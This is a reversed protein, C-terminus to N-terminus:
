PSESGSPPDVPVTVTFTSGRGPVSGVSVAGGHAQAIARVISLGLGAGDTRTTASRGRSFRDFIIKQEDEDIGSGTDSVWIRIRGDALQSGIGIRDGAGTHHVANDALALVAQTIRQADLPAHAPSSAELVWNRDALRSAKGFIEDTLAAVDVVTRRIFEPQEARALLLLDSVIRNMRELEDDVLAVTQRVDQPDTATMVDLHGRVITIPTRLEHGADDLFRRRGSVASEVRDLVDNLTATLVGFEDGPDPSSPPIRGSLDTETISHATTTINRVPALIRGALVWSGAAAAIATVAGGVAMIRGTDNASEREQDAFYAAVVVGHAPDNDLSVPVALYLVEGAGSEYSGEVPHTSSAVLDTFGTDDALRIPAQERSQFRFQGDVYGLFKENPRALNYTIVVRLVDDVTAFPAGTAPDVGSETLTTFEAIETRLSDRMRQDVSRITLFWTLLSIVALASLVLLLVWGAIRARASRLRPWRRPITSM